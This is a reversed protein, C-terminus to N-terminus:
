KFQEKVKPRTFFFINAFIFFIPLIVIEFLNMKEIMNELFLHIVAVPLILLTLSFFILNLKRAIPIVFLTLIGLILPIFVTLFCEWFLINITLGHWYKRSMFLMPLFRSGFSLAIFLQFSAIVKIAIRWKSTKEM